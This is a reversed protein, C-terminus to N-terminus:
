LVITAAAHTLYVIKQDIIGRQKIDTLLQQKKIPVEEATYFGCVTNALKNIELKTHKTLLRRVSGGDQYVKKEISSIEL